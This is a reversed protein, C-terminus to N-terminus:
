KRRHKKANSPENSLSVAELSEGRVGMVFDHLKPRKSGDYVELSFKGGPPIRKLYEGLEPATCFVTSNRYSLQSQVHLIDGAKLGGAAASSSPSVSSVFVGGTDSGQSKKCRNFGDKVANTAEKNTPLDKMGPTITTLGVGFETQKAGGIFVIEQPSTGVPTVSDCIHHPSLNGMIADPQTHSRGQYTTLEYKLRIVKGNEEVFATMRHKQEPIVCPANSLDDAAPLTALGTIADQEFHGEFKWRDVQAKLDNGDSEVWKYGTCGSKCQWWGMLSKRQDIQQSSAQVAAQAKKKKAELVYIHDQVSRAKEEGPNSALYFHLSKEAADLQGVLEQSISQGLYIEGWWPALQLAKSYSDLAIREDEPSKAEQHLTMGEIYYRRAEEPMAPAPDLNAASQVLKERLSDDSPNQALQALLDKFAERPSQAALAFATTFIMLLTLAFRSKRMPIDEM